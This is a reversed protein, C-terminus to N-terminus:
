SGTALRKRVADVVHRTTAQGDTAPGMDPTRAGSDIASYV